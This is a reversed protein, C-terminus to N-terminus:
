RRRPSTRAEEGGALPHRVAAAAASAAAVVHQQADAQRVEVQEPGFAPPRDGAFRPSAASSARSVSTYAWAPCPRCPPRRGPRPRTAAPAVGLSVWASASARVADARSQWNSLRSGDMRRFGM